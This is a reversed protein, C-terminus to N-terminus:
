QSIFIYGWYMVASVLLALAIVAWVVKARDTKGYLVMLFSTVAGLPLLYGAVQVLPFLLLAIVMIEPGRTFIFLLGFAALIAFCSVITLVSRIFDSLKSQDAVPPTPNDFQGNQM